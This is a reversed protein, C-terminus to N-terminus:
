QRQERGWPDPSKVRSSGRMPSQLLLGRTNQFVLSGFALHWNFQHTQPEQQVSRVLKLNYNWPAVWPCLAQCMSIHVCAHDSSVKANRERKKKKLSQLGQPVIKTTTIIPFEAPRTLLALIPHLIHESLTISHKCVCCCCCYKCM